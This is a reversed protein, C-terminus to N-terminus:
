LWYQWHSTKDTNIFGEGSYHCEIASPHKQKSCLKLYTLIISKAPKMKLIGVYPKLVISYHILRFMSKSTYIDGFYTKKHYLQLQQKKDNKEILIYSDIKKLTKPFSNSTLTTKM